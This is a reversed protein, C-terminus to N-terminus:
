QSRINENINRTRNNLIENGRSGASGRESSTSSQVGSNEQTRQRQERESHQRQHRDYGEQVQRDCKGGSGSKCEGAAPGAVTCTILALLALIAKM